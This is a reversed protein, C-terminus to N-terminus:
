RVFRTILIAIWLGGVAALTEWTSSVLGLFVTSLSNIAFYPSLFPSAMYAFREKRHRLALSILALGFPISLPWFSINAAGGIASSAKQFWGPYVLLSLLTMVILPMFTVIVQRLGGKRWAEVFWFLAMVGGVQPKILVFFLGIQPPMLYGLMVLWNINLSWLEVLVPPSVIFILTTVLNAKLKHLIFIYAVLIAFFFIMNGIKEPLLAIPLLPLLTWPPYFFGYGEYPSEGKFIALPAPRFTGHFDVGIPLYKYAVAIELVFLITFIIILIIKRKTLTQLAVKM